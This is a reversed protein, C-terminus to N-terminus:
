QTIQILASSVNLSHLSGNLSGGSYDRNLYFKEAKPDPVFGDVYDVLQRHKVLAPGWSRSPAALLKIKQLPVYIM